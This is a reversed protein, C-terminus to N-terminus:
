FNSRLVTYNEYKKNAVEVRLLKEQEQKGYDSVSGWIYDGNYKLNKIFKNKLINM